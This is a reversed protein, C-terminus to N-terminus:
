KEGLSTVSASGSSNQTITPSGYYSVKSSGDQDVVLTDHVWLEIGAAGSGTIVAEDSELDDALYNASGSMHVEQREVSGGLVLKTSGSFKCTLLTAQLNEIKGDTSGSFEMGLTAANIEDVSLNFSGSSKIVVNDAEVLGFNLNSSGSGSVNFTAADLTALHLSSSGSLDIDLDGVVADTMRVDVSGSADLKEVMPLVLYYEIDETPRLFRYWSSEQRIELRDGVVRTEIHDMLNDEAVIKLSPTEGLELHLIAGGDVVVQTVDTITREEEVVNGSGITGWNGLTTTSCLCGMGILMLLLAAILISTHKM